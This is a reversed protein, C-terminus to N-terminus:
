VATVEAIPGVRHTQVIRIIMPEHTGTHYMAHSKSISASLPVPITPHPGLRDSFCQLFFPGLTWYVPFVKGSICVDQGM